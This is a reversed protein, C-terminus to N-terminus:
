LDPNGTNNKEYFVLPAAGGVTEFSINYRVVVKYIDSSINNRSTTEDIQRSSWKQLWVCSNTAHKSYTNGKKDNLISSSCGWRNDLWDKRPFSCKLISVIYTKSYNRRKKRSSRNQFFTDFHRGVLYFFTMSCKNSLAM